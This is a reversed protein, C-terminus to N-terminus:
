PYLVGLPVAAAMARYGAASPHLKDGSDYAPALALPDAPDRGAVDFDIVHDYITSTRIFTNLAARVSERESTFGQRRTPLLTAGIVRLGAMRARLALQAHAQILPAATIPTGYIDNIGEFVILTHVGAHSLVDRDLRALASLGAGPRQAAIRNGSIAANVLGLQRAAPERALRRALEDTWGRYSGRPTGGSDTISDGIIAVSGANPEGEGILADAFLWHPVVTPFAAGDELAGHDGAATLYSNDKPRLHGTTAGPSGSVAISVLLDANAALPLSVADSIASAGAPIAIESAGNFTAHRNSGSRIRAGDARLGIHLSSVVLPETGFANNLRVRVQRADTTARIALRITCDAVPYDLRDMAAAWITAPQGAHVTRPRALLPSAAIGALGALAARRNLKM